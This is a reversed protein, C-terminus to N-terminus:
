LHATWPMISQANKFALRIEKAQCLMQRQCVQFCVKPYHNKSVSRKVAKLLNMQKYELKIEQWKSCAVQMNASPTSTTSLINGVQSSRHSYLNKGNTAHINSNMINTQLSGKITELRGNRNKLGLQQDKTRYWLGKLQLHLYVPMARAKHLLAHGEKTHGLMICPKKRSQALLHPQPIPM